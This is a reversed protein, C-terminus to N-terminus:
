LSLMLDEKSEHNLQHTQLIHWKDRWQDGSIVPAWLAMSKVNGYRHASILSVLGGFSRGFIGLRSKDINKDKELYELAVLADSVQGEITMENFEGEREGYGRFDFSLYDIGM